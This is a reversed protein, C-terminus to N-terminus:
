LSLIESILHPDQAAARVRSADDAPAYISFGAKGKEALHHGRYDRTALELDVRSQEHDRTEYEIRLDPLPIKGDVVKLGNDQAIQERRADQESQPLSKLKALERYLDRKLEYDLVVRLNTGGDREIKESAKQYLRYLTTDHRAERPKVFGHHLSQNAALGQPRNRNLFAHASRTVTLLQEKETGPLTRRQILGQATLNRLDQTAQDANGRYQIEVLDETKVSRFKAIEILAAVESERLNYERDRDPRPRRNGREVNRPREGRNRSEPQEQEGGSAGGRGPEPKADEPKRESDQKATPDPARYDEPDFDYRSM